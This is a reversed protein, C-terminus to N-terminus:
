LIAVKVRENRTGEKVGKSMCSVKMQCVSPVTIWYHFFFIHVLLSFFNVDNEVGKQNNTKACSQLILSDNFQLFLFEYCVKEKESLGFEFMKYVNPQLLFLIVWKRSNM